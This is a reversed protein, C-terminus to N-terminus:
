AVTNHLDEVAPSFVENFGDIGTLGCIGLFKALFEGAYLQDAVTAALQPAIPALHDSQSNPKSSALRRSLPRTMGTL